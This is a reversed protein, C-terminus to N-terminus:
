PKSSLIFRRDEGFLVNETVYSHCGRCLLAINEKDVISGGRGRSLLEHMDVAPIVGCRECFPNNEFMEERLRNREVYLEKMKKSRSKIYGSGKLSTKRVLM